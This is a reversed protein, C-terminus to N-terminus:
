VLDLPRGNFRNNRSDYHLAKNFSPIAGHPISVAIQLADDEHLGYLGTLLEVARYYDKPIKGEVQFNLRLGAALSQERLLRVTKKTKTM